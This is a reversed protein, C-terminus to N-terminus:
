INEKRGSPNLNYEEEKEQEFTIGACAFPAIM